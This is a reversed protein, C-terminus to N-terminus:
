ELILKGHYTQSGNITLNYIYVGHELHNRKYVITNAGQVTDGKIAQVLLGTANYVNLIYNSKEDSNFTINATTKIPNPLVSITPKTNIVEYTETTEELSKFEINKIEMEKKELIGEHSSKMLFVIMTVDSTDIITNDNANKFEEISIDFHKEKDNLNFTYKYQNEWESISEKMLIVTMNGNGIADMSFTNYENLNVSKFRPNFAKYASVYSPTEARLKINREVSYNDDYFTHDNSSVEYEYVTTLYGSDDVGWPGDSVFLDDPTGGHNDEIRFGVDFLSGTELAVNTNYSEVELSTNIHKTDSTETERLGGDITTKTPTNYTNVINLNLKGNKYNGKRVYTKPPTSTIYEKISRENKFSNIIDNTLVYVDDVTNSWIQFNYFATNAKYKDLNWHSEITYTFNESERVALSVVHEIEGGPNKIITKIFPTEEIFITGISLIEGGLLRDCIFKTHEYVGNNTKLALISAVTEKGQNVYDVSFIDDANTIDILDSPSTVITEANHIVGFPIFDKLETKAQNIFRQSQRYVPAKAKNFQYNLRSRQYNRATIKQSLRNNSELGGDNASTTLTITPCAEVGSCAPDDCDVLGDGDDDVGNSCNEVPVPATPCRAGDNSASAPGYAFLNSSIDSESKITHTRKVIYVTGTQNASVYLNGDLDFYVAGYTYNNGKLIPVEGLDSMTNNSTNICFLHNSSKEVTYLNNDNANFAWDHINLNRSLNFSGVHSLYDTSEPNLDIMHTEIGKKYYYIGNLSIDGVYSNAATNPISEIKFETTNFDNGIRILTKHKEQLFGWLYGDVSNYAAANVRSDNINEAVLISNGSALNLAYINNYQFLYSNYVCNFPQNTKEQAITTICQLLLFLLTTLKKM